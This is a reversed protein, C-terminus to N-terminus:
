WSSTVPLSTCVQRTTDMFPLSAGRGGQGAGGQAVQAPSLGPTPSTCAPTHESVGQPWPSPPASVHWSGEEKVGPM